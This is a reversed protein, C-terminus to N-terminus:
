VAQANSVSRGPGKLLCVQLLITTQQERSPFAIGRQEFLALVSCGQCQTSGPGLLGREGHREDNPLPM